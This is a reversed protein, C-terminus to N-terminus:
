NKFGSRRALNRNMELATRVIRLHTYVEAGHVIFLAIKDSYFSTLIHFYLDVCGTATATGDDLPYSM